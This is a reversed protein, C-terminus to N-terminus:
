FRLVAKGESETLAEVTGSINHQQLPKEIRDRGFRAIIHSVTEDKIAIINSGASVALSSVGVEAGTNANESLVRCVTRMPASTLRKSPVIFSLCVLFPM